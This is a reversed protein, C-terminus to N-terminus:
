PQSKLIHLGTATNIPPLVEIPNEQCSISPPKALDHNLPQLLSIIRIIPHRDLLTGSRLKYVHILTLIREKEQASHIEYLAWSM